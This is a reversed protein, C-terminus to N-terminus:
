VVMETLRKRNAQHKNDLLQCSSILCPSLCRGLLVLCKDLMPFCRDLMYWADAPALLTGLLQWAHVLLTGLLPNTSEQCNIPVQKASPQGHKVLAQHWDSSLSCCAFPFHKVSITTYSSLFIQNLKPSKGPPKIHINGLKSVGNKNIKM